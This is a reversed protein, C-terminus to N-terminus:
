STSGPSVLSTYTQPTTASTAQVSLLAPKGCSLCPYAEDALSQMIRESLGQMM